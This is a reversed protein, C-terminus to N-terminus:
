AAKAVPTEAAEIDPFRHATKDWRLSGGAWLRLYIDVARRAAVMAVVNAILLRPVSWLAEALGYARYVFLMRVGLRWWLLWFTADLITALPEPLPTPPVFGALVLVGALGTVLLGAYAAALVIAALPARRDHLRMWVEAPSRSWGLRDWGALSIGVMWRAKQRIADRMRDPFHERTAVLEGRADRMRVVIGRGGREGIHLGLEYDETLSEADFPAGGRAGALEGIVARSVACGVGASPVAAGLTERVTLAKGHSEAFEDSYHGSILRSWLSTHSIIPLVPLQVLAFRDILTSMVRIADGHVVDEADHLVVAKAPVGREEEWRLLARWLSNLCDATTTPGDEAKVVM